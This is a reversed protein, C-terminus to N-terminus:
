SELLFIIWTVIFDVVGLLMNNEHGKYRIFSSKQPIHNFNNVLSFDNLISFIFIGNWTNIKFLENLFSPGFNGM